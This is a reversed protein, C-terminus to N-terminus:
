NILYVMKLWEAGNTDRDIITFADSNFVLDSAKPYALFSRRGEKGEYNLYIGTTDKYTVVRPGAIKEPVPVAVLSGFRPDREYREVQRVKQGICIERKFEALTKTM